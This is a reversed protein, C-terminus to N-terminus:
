EERRRGRRAHVGLDVVEVVRRPGDEAARLRRDYHRSGPRVAASPVRAELELACGRPARQAITRGTMGLFTVPRSHTAQGDRSDWDPGANSLVRGRRGGRGRTARMTTEHGSNRCRLGPDPGTTLCCTQALGGEALLIDGRKRSLGVARVRHKVTIEILRVLLALLHTSTGHGRGRSSCRLLSVRTAKWWRRSFIAPPSPSAPM